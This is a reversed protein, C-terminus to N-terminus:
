VRVIAGSYSRDPLNIPPNPVPVDLEAPGTPRECPKGARRQYSGRKGADVCLAYDITALMMAPAAISCPEIFRHLPLSAVASLPSLAQTFVVHKEVHEAQNRSFKFFAKRSSQAITASPPPSSLLFASFAANHHIDPSGDGAKRLRRAFHCRHLGGCEIIRATMSNDHRM